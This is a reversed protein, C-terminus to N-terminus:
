WFVASMYVSEVAVEGYGAVPPNFENVPPVVTGTVAAM